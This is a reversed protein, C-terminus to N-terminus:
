TSLDSSPSFTGDDVIAGLLVNKGASLAVGRYGGRSRPAAWIANSVRRRNISLRSSRIGSACRAYRSRRRSAACPRKETELAIGTTPSLSLKLTGPRVFAQVFKVVIVASTLYTLSLAIM